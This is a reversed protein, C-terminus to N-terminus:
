SELGHSFHVSLVADAFGLSYPFTVAAGIMGETRLADFAAQIADYQRAFGALRAEEQKLDGRWMWQVVDIRPVALDALYADVKARLRGEDFLVDGFHPEALKVVHQMELRRGGLRRVLACFRAFPDYGTSCPGCSPRAPRNRSARPVVRNVYEGKDSRIKLAQHLRTFQLASLLDLTRTEEAAEDDDDGDKQDPDVPVKIGDSVGKQVVEPSSALQLLREVKKPRLDTIEAIKASSSLAPKLKQLTVLGLAADLPSIDARFMNEALGFLLVQDDTV